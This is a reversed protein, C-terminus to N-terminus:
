NLIGGGDIYFQQGTIFGSDNSALFVIAGVLDEPMGVRHIFKNKSREELYERTSGGTDTLGPHVMNVCVNKAGLERAVCRM